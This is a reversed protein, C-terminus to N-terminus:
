HGAEEEEEEEEESSLAKPPETSEAPAPEPGQEQETERQQAPLAPKPVLPPEEPPEEESLADPEPIAELSASVTEASNHNEHSGAELSGRPEKSTRGRSFLLAKDRIHWGHLAALLSSAFDAVQEEGM